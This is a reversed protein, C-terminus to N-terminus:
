RVSKAQGESLVQSGSGGQTGNEISFNSSLSFANCDLQEQVNNSFNFIHSTFFECMVYVCWYLLRSVMLM